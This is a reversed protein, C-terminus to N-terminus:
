GFPWAELQTGSNGPIISGPLTCPSTPRYRETANEHQRAWCFTADPAISEIGQESGRGKRKGQTNSWRRRYPSLIYLKLVTAKQNSETVPIRSSESFPPSVIPLSALPPSATFRWRRSQDRRLSRSVPTAEKRDNLFRRPTAAPRLFTQVDPLSSSPAFHPELSPPISERARFQSADLEKGGLERNGERWNM